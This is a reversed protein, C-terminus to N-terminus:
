REERKCMEWGARLRLDLVKMLRVMGLTRVTKPRLAKRNAAAKLQFVKCFVRLSETKVERETKLCFISSIVTSEQVQQIPRTM